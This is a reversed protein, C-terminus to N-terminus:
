NLFLHNWTIFFKNINTIYQKNQIFIHVYIRVRTNQTHTKLPNLEMKLMVNLTQFSLCCWLIHEALTEFRNGGYLVCKWNWFRKWLPICAMDTKEM